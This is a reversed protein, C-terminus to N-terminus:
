TRLWVTFTSGKGPQSAVTVKGGHQETIGKVIALGLGTGGGARSRAKDVRYFRDFIHPLHEASIGIGTDGVELCAWDGDRYLSLTIAGKEGTYRMANDVLNTLLERLRYADGRIVIDELRGISVTKNAVLSLARKQEEILLDKLRVADWTGKQGSEVEALLLLDGVIKRMRRTEAEIARLSERRNAESPDRRILDLNGQIVTLPSRLEHSADAVFGKQSEFTKHLRAIMHDFTTALRGIEDAPGHYGVRRSLDSGDEISRATRTIREVPTLTQRVTLAGSVVVLTLALLTTTLIALKLQNLTTEIPELSQAVLLVVSQDRLFLPSAMTRVTLDEGASVTAIATTGAFGADILAADLPLEQQGLNVSKLVVQRNSDILELYVGPIAFENVPPLRSHVVEYNIPEPIEEPTISGHVQRTYFRLNDDIQNDLYRETLAYLVVGTLVLIGLVILSFWLTLRWRVPM